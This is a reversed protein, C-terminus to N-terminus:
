IANNFALVPGFWSTSKYHAAIFVAAGRAMGIGAWFETMCTISQRQHSRHLEDPRRDSSDVSAASSPLDSLLM